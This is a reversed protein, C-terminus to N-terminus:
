TAAGQNYYSDFSSVADEKNEVANERGSHIFYGVFALLLALVVYVVIMIGTRKKNKIEQSTLEEVEEVYDDDFFSEKNEAPANEPAVAAVPAPASPELCKESIMDMLFEISANILEEPSEGPQSAFRLVRSANRDAVAVYINYKRTGTEQSNGTYVNSVAAGLADEGEPIAFRALDAIYSRPAEDGRQASYDTFMFVDNIVDEACLDKVMECSATAAFYIKKGKERLLSVAKEVCDSQPATEPQPEEEPQSVQVSDSIQNIGTREFHAEVCALQVDLRLKDLPLMVFHQEGSVLSFGSFLGDDSLFVDASEPMACHLSIQQTDLSRNAGIRDRVTQNMKTQVHMARLIALKAKSYVSPEVGVAIIGSNAFADSLAASVQAMSSCLRFDCRGLGSLSSRIKDAASQVTEAGSTNLAIFSVNM